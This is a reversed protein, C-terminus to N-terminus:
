QRKKSPFYGQNVSGHRKADYKIRDKLPVNEFLEAVKEEAQSYLNTEVGHGSLVAFGIEELAKGLKQAFAAKGEKGGEFFEQMDCTQIVFEDDFQDELKNEVLNYEQDKVVGEYKRFEQNVAHIGDKQDKAM